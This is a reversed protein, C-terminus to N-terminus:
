VGIAGGKRLPLIVATPEHAEGLRRAIDAGITETARRVPDNDLHAYRETTSVAAHGLLKALIPLGAGGGAGVSAFSHRLDHLRVGELGARKSVLAWPRQLDARPKEDATGARDGAIVYRGVRPLGGLVQMAPANLVIAKRGTKSDALFLMGRELDVNAWELNLIERLRAGTLLLLRLAAAAHPSLTTRRNGKPVHKTNKTPDLEWPIGVTEAERIAAGLREMEETTLFRDRRAERYKDVDAAPNAGKEVLGRKSAWGYLSAVVALMRNAMYPTDRMGHHLRAIDATALDRARRDGLVPLVYSQLAHRYQEQTKPKRATAVHELFQEAIERLRLAARAESRMAAPDGGNAISGLLTLAEKRAGEVTWPAGHRGITLFRQQGNVRVKLVFTADRVQRRVGFGRVDTDWIAVGAPMKDVLVKTLRKTAM